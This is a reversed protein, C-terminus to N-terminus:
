EGSREEENPPMPWSIEAPFGPQETIDRLAQRYSRWAALVEPTLVADLLQTWDCAGLRQDRDSRATRALQEVDPPAAWPVVEGRMLDVRCTAPDYAGEMAACGPPTNMPLWHPPGSFRGSVFEGTDLHYFSWTKM